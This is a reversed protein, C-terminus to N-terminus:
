SFILKKKAAMIPQDSDVFYGIHRAINGSSPEHEPYLITNLIGINRFTVAIVDIYGVDNKLRRMVNDKTYFALKEEEIIYRLRGEYKEKTYTLEQQDSFTIIVQNIYTTM